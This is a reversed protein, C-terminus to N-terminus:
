PITVGAITVPKNTVPNLEDAQSVGAPTLVDVGQPRDGPRRRLDPQRRRRPRRASASSSTRRHRSSGAPTTPASGTRGPLVVAFRGGAGPTGGLAAKPVTFTIYRTAAHRPDGGHRAHRRRRRRVAARLGPGRDAPEVRVRRRDHLQPRPVVRRDVHRRRAPDHVYVDVLQAGLPSGFTPTLDATQVRFTVTDTGSDYVQFQQLDYAGPKSTTRRRTPTPAPATTTAPRTPRRRLGAHRARLRLRRHAPRLRHCRQARYRGRDATPARRCPSPSRSRARRCRGHGDGDDGRRAIDTNVADVDVM